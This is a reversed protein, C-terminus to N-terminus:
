CVKQFSKNRRNEQMFNSSGTDISLRSFFDIYIVSFSDIEQMFVNSKVNKNLYESWRSLNIMKRIFM